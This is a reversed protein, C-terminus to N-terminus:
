LLTKQVSQILRLAMLSDEPPSFLPAKQQINDILNDLAQTFSQTWECKIVEPQPNLIKLHPFFVDTEVHHIEIRRGNECIRIRAKECLLDLEFINYCIRDFPQLVCSIQNHTRCCLLVAGDKEHNLPGLQRAYDLSLNGVFYLILDILHCGNHIYTDAYYGNITKIKGYIGSNIQFRLTKIEPIFRRFFNIQIAINKDHATNIISATNDAVLTMPKECWIGSIDAQLAYNLLLEHSADPTAISLIQVAERELLESLGPYVKLHPFQEKIILQQKNSTEAVAILDVRESLEGYSKIHTMHMKRQQSFGTAVAGAGILAAKYKTKEPPM